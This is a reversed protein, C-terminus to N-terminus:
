TNHPSGSSTGEKAIRHVCAHKQMLDLSCSFQIVIWVSWICLVLANLTDYCCHANHTHMRWSSYLWCNTRSTHGWFAGRVITNRAGNVQVAGGKRFENLHPGELSSIGFHCHTHTHACASALTYDCYSSKRNNKRHAKLCSGLWNCEWVQERLSGRKKHVRM